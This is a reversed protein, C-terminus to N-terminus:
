SGCPSKASEYHGSPLEKWHGKNGELCGGLCVFEVELAMCLRLCWPSKMLIIALAFVLQLYTGRLSPGPTVLM